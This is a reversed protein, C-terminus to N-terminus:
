MIMKNLTGINPVETIRKQMVYIKNGSRACVYARDSYVFSLKKHVVETHYQSHKPSEDLSGNERPELGSIANANPKHEKLLNLSQNVVTAVRENNELSGSSQLISGQFNHM